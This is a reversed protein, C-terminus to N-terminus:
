EEEEKEMSEIIKAYRRLLERLEESLRLKEDVVISLVHYACNQCYAEGHEEVYGYSIGWCGGIGDNHYGLPMRCWCPIKYEAKM